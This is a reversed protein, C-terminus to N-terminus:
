ARQDKHLSAWTIHIHWNAYMETHSVTLTFFPLGLKWLNVLWHGKWKGNHASTLPVSLGEDKWFINKRSSQEVSITKNSYKTECHGRPGTLLLGTVGTFIISLREMVPQGPINNWPHDSYKLNSCAIVNLTHSLNTKQPIYFSTASFFTLNDPRTSTQPQVHLRWNLKLQLCVSLNSLKTVCVPLAPPLWWPPRPMYLWHEQEMQFPPSLNAGEM